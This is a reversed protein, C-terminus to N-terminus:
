LKLLKLQIYLRVRVTLSITPFSACLLSFHLGPTNKRWHDASAGFGHVLLM